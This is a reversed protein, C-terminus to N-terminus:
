PFWLPEIRSHFWKERSRNSDRDRASRWQQGNELRIGQYSIPPPEPDSPPNLWWILLAGQDEPEGFLATLSATWSRIRANKLGSSAGTDLAVAGIGSTLLSERVIPTPTIAEGRSMQEIYARIPQANLWAQWDKPPPSEPPRLIPNAVDKGHIRAHLGVFPAQRHNRALPLELVAGNTERLREWPRVSELSTSHLPANASFFVTELILLAAILKPRPARAAAVALGIAILLGWREPWTLREFVPHVQALWHFPMSIPSDGLLVPDQGWKLYPGMAMVVGLVAIGAFRKSGGNRLSLFVAALLIVSSRNSVDIPESRFLMLPDNGHEVLFGQGQPLADMASSTTQADPLRTLTALSLSELNLAYPFLFPSAVVLSIGAVPLVAKWDRRPSRILFLSAAALFIATYWYAVGSLGMWLGAAWQDRRNGGELVRLMAALYLPAFPSLAQPAHHLNIERLLNESLAYAVGVLFASSHSGTLQHGLRHAALGNASIVALWFLNDGNPFGFLASLAGGLMHDLLNPTWQLIPMGTPFYIGSSFPIDTPNQFLLDPVLGRLMITDMADITPYGVIRNGMDIAIPWSIAIALAAYLLAALCWQARKSKPGQVM